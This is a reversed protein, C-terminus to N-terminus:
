LHKLRGNLRIHVKWKGLKSEMCVGKYISSANSGKCRNRSNETHTAWRLDGWHNNTRDNDMHDVCMKGDPNGVWERAVLQHVCHTERKGERCLVVTLYSNSSRGAKLIRGTTTNVVRGFWSVEYNVYGDISAWQERNTELNTTDIEM